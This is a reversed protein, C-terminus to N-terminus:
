IVATLEYARQMGSYDWDWTFLAKIECHDEEPEANWKASRVSLLLIRGLKELEGLVYIICPPILPKRNM